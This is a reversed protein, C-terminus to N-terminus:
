ETVIKLGATTLATALADSLTATTRLSGVEIGLEVITQAIAPSLGSVICGCGMLKSAKTIKIIHNAVATDVVAVGSIDLIIVKSRTQSIKSLVTQMLDQARKSDLIGVIPLMLVGEWISTVPTSMEVLSRSQKEIKQQTMSTYAQVVVATEMHVLKALAIRQLNIKHPDSGDITLSQFYNLSKSMGAFYSTLSLGIKAHQVGLHERTQIHKEDINALLTQHWYNKQAGKVRELRQKDSFYQRYDPQQELWAYFSEVYDDLLPIAKEGFESILKLDDGTIEYVKLLSEVKNV